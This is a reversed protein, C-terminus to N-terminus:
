QAFTWRLVRGGLALEFQSMALSAAGCADNLIKEFEGPRGRGLLLGDIEVADDVASQLQVLMREASVVDLNVETRLRVQGANHAVGILENLDEEIKDGVGLLGNSLDTFRTTNMDTKSTEPRANGDRELVIADAKPGFGDRPEEVRKVGGFTRAAASAEAEADAERDNALVAAGNFGFGKRRTAGCERNIERNSEVLRSM